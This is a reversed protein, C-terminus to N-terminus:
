ARKRRRKARSPQRQPTEDQREYRVGTFFLIEVARNEDARKAPRVREAPFTIVEGMLRGWIARTGDSRSITLQTNIRTHDAKM